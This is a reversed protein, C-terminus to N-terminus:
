FRTVTGRTDVLYRHGHPSAWAYSGDANSLYTSRHQVEVLM